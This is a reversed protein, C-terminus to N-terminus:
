VLPGTKSTTCCGQPVTSSELFAQGSLSRTYWSIAFDDLGSLRLRLRISCQVVANLELDLETITLKIILCVHEIQDQSPLFSWGIVGETESPITM